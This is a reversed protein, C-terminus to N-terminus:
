CEFKSNSEKRKGYCYGKIAILMGFMLIITSSTTFITTGFSALMIYFLCSIIIAKVRYNMKTKQIVDFFKYLIFVVTAFGLFGFQGLIMPWYNDNLFYLEGPRMGWYSYFGFEVHLKSYYNAAIDSGFSAFGAGLPFYRFSTKIGDYLLIYRPANANTLYTQIQYTGLVCGVIALPVVTRFTIKSKNKIAFFIVLIAAATVISTGKTSLILQVITMAIYIWYIRINKTTLVVFLLCLLLIMAYIHAHTFIFNFGWIGFRKQGRMGLDKFLSLIGCVFGLIILIRALKSLIHVIDRSTTEDIICDYGVCCIPLKFMRVIDLVIAQGQTQVGFLLNGTLGLTVIIGCCILIEQKTKSVGGRILKVCMIVLFVISFFEDYYKLVEIKSRFIESLLMLVLIGLPLITKKRIKM